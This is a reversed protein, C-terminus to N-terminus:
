RLVTAVVARGKKIDGGWKQRYQWVPAPIKSAAVPKFGLGAFFGPVGTVAFLETLGLQRAEQLLVMVLEKGIGLGQLEELVALSKIEGLQRSYLQMSVCGCVGHGDHAVVFRSFNDYLAMLPVAVLLDAEAYRKLLRYIQPADAPESQRLQLNKLRERAEDLKASLM